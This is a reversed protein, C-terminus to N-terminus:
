KNGQNIVQIISSYQHHLLPMKEALTIWACIVQPAEVFLIVGIAILLKRQCIYLAKSRTTRSDEIPDFPNLSDM